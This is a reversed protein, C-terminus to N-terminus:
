PTTQPISSPPKLNGRQALTTTILMAAQGKSIDDPFSIGLSRLFGKQKDSAQDKRWRANQSYLIIEEPCKKSLYKDGEVLASELSPYAGIGEKQHDVFFSLEYKELLNQEIVLKSKKDQLYIAYGNTIPLWVFQSHLSVCEDIQTHKLIDFDEIFKQLEELSHAKHLPIYPYKKQLEEIEKQIANVSKGKLEFDPPLGFLSPLSILIHNRSNDTLDIVILDEKGECIRTGRGICQTYLLGSKTPRAMIISSLSPLDYGETLVMCNAIVKIKGKALDSLTKAREESPTDGLVIGCEVGHERFTNAMDVTHAKDVCFVLAKRGECYTRYAEVALKNRNSTNVAESLESDVFDGHSIRVGSLDTSTRIRHASIPCLWKAEIMERIDRKFVIDQYVANLGIKDGRNPTATFGILLKQSDNFIGFYNFINMYSPSVSHHAEDCIILPWGNPDFRKLRPNDKRGLTAVSAVIVDAIFPSAHREAQEIDINLDPNVTSIKDKAQQLLEERHALVLTKQVRMTQPLHAFIVTKGTGTPLAVLQRSIGQEYKSKITNRCEDQYDRLQM